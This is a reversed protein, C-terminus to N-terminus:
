LLLRWLIQSAESESDNLIEVVLEHSYFHNEPIFPIHDDDWFAAIVFPPAVDCHLNM